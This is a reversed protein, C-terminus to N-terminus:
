CSMILNNEDRFYLLKVQSPDSTLAVCVIKKYDIQLFVAESTLTHEQM